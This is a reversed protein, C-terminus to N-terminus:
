LIALCSIPFQETGEFNTVKFDNTQQINQEANLYHASWISTSIHKKCKEYTKSLKQHLFSLFLPFILMNKRMGLYHNVCFNQDVVRM